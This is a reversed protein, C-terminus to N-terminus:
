STQRPTPTGNKLLQWTRQGFLTNALCMWIHASSADIEGSYGMAAAQTYEVDTLTDYFLLDEAMALQALVASALGAFRGLRMATALFAHCSFTFVFSM